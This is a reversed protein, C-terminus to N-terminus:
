GEVVLQGQMSPHISCAFNYTGPETPATFTTSTGPDIRGTDFGDDAATVTHPAGDENSVTITDGPSVTLTSSFAFDSISITSGDSSAAPADADSAAADGDSSGCAALGLAIV